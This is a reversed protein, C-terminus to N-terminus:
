YNVFHVINCFSIFNIACIRQDFVRWFFTWCWVKSHKDFICM